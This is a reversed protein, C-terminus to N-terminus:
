RLCNAAKYRSPTIGAQQSFFRSFVAASSFGLLAAVESLCTQDQVLLRKAQAMRLRTHIAQFSSSEKQLRRHLSSRSLRFHDCTAQLLQQGADHGELAVPWPQMLHELRAQVRAAFSHRAAIARMEDEAKRCFLHYLMSNHKGYPDLARPASFRLRNRAQGFRLPCGADRVLRRWAPPQQGTLELLPQRIADRGQGCYSRALSLIGDLSNLAILASRANGELQFEFEFEDGARRYWMADVEGILPRYAICKDFAAVLNPANSVVAIKTIFPEGWRQTDTPMILNVPEPLADLLSLMALYGRAEVRAGSQQALGPAIGTLQRFQEAGVGARLAAAMGRQVLEASVTKSLVAM